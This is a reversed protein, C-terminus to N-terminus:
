RHPQTEEWYFFKMRIMEQDIYALDEEGLYQLYGGVQGRRVKFSEPDRPDGPSLIGNELFNAAELMKMNEFRCYAVADNMVAEDIGQANMMALATRLTRLPNARTDEYRIVQFQVPVDANRLWSQYVALIKRIGMVDDRIFESLSGEFAQMRRTAQFYLSVIVDKPDRVLFLVRKARYRTKRDKLFVRYHHGHIFGSCDHDFDTVRIEPARGLQLSLTVAPLSIFAERLSEGYHDSLVKAIMLKLWTRGCKPFSVIHLETQRFTETVAFKDEPHLLELLPNLLRLASAKIGTVMTSM